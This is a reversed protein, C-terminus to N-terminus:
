FKRDPRLTEQSRSLIQTYTCANHMSAVHKEFMHNSCPFNKRVEFHVNGNPPTKTGKKNFKKAKVNPNMHHNLVSGYDLVLAGHTKNHGFMYNHAAESKPINNPLFLTM